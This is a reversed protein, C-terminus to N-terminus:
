IEKFIEGLKTLKPFELRVSLKGIKLIKEHFLDKNGKIEEDMERYGIELQLVLSCYFDSLVLM